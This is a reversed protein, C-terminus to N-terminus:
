MLGKGHKPSKVGHQGLIAAIVPDLEGSGKYVRAAADAIEEMKRWLTRYRPIGDREHAGAREIAEALLEDLLEDSLHIRSLGRAKVFSGLAKALSPAVTSDVKRNNFPIWFLRALINM